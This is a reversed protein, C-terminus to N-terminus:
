TMVKPVMMSNPNVVMGLPKAPNLPVSTPAGAAMLELEAVLRTAVPVHRFFLVFEDMSVEGDGSPDMKGLLRQISAEDLHALDGGGATVAPTANKRPAAAPPCLAVLAARLERGNIHGSGDTDVADFARVLDCTEVLHGVMAHTLKTPRRAHDLGLRFAAAWQGESLERLNNDKGGGGNSGTPAV